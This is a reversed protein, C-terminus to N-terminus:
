RQLLGFTAFTMQRGLTHTDGSQLPDDGAPGRQPLTRAGTASHTVDRRVYGKNIFRELASPIATFLLLARASVRLTKPATHKM